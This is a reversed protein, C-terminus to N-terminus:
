QAAEKHAPKTQRSHKRYRRDKLGMGRAINPGATYGVAGGAVAGVPGGVIAGAAAGMLADGVREGAGAACPALAVGFVIAATGYLTKM